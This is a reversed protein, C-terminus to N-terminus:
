HISPDMAWSEFLDPTLLLLHTELHSNFGCSDKFDNQSSLYWTFHSSVPCQHHFSLLDSLLYYQIELHWPWQPFPAPLLFSGFLTLVHSYIFLLFIILSINQTREYETKSSHWSSQWLAWRLKSKDCKMYVIAVHPQSSELQIVRSSLIIKKRGKDRIIQEWYV